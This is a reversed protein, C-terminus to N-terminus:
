PPKVMGAATAAQNELAKLWAGHVALLNQSSPLRAMQVYKHDNLELFVVRDAYQILYLLTRTRPSGLHLHMIGHNVLLPDPTTGLGKRYCGEPIPGGAVIARRMAVLALVEAM